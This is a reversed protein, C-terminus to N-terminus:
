ALMLRWGVDEMVELELRTLSESRLQDEGTQRVTRTTLLATIRHTLGPWALTVGWCLISLLSVSLVSFM